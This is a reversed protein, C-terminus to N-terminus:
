KYIEKNIIGLAIVVVVLEFDNENIDRLYINNDTTTTTNNYTLLLAKTTIYIIKACMIHEYNCEVETSKLWVKIGLDKFTRGVFSTKTGPPRYNLPYYEPFPNEKRFDAGTNGRLRFDIKQRVERKRLYPYHHLIAGVTEPVFVDAVDYGM